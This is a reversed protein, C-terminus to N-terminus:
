AHAPSRRRAAPSRPAGRRHRGGAPSRAPPVRGQRRRVGLLRGALDVAGARSPRRPSRAAHAMPESALLQAPSMVPTAPVNRRQAEEVSRKPRPAPSCSPMSRPWCMPTACDGGYTALEEDDLEASRRGLRAAGAVPPCSVVLPRVLGDRTPFAPHGARPQGPADSVIDPRQRGRRGHRHDPDPRTCPCSSTTASEM